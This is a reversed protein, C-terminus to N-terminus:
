QQMDTIYGTAWDWVDESKEIEVHNYDARRQYVVSLYNQNSFIRYAPKESDDSVMKYSIEETDPNLLITTEGDTIATRYEVPRDDKFDVRTLLKGEMMKASLRYSKDLYLATDTRGNM